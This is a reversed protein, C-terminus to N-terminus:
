LLSIFEKLLMIFDEQSSKAAELVEKHSLPEGTLGAAPNSVRSICSVEMSLENARVTEPVTSMGVTDGGTLRLYEIEAKTEFSPGTMYAYCGRVVPINRNAGAQFLLSNLRESFPPKIPIKYKESFPAIYSDLIVMAGTCLDRNIGGAANTLLLNKVGAAHLLNIPFIVEDYSYGEYYHVRGALIMIKKGKYIGTTITGKHGMVTSRPYGPIDSTKISSAGEIEDELFSLGSGLVIATSINETDLNDEIYKKAQLTEM